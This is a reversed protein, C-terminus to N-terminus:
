PLQSSACPMSPVRASSIKEKERDKQGFLAPVGVMLAVYSLM